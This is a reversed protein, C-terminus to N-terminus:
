SAGCAKRSAMIRRPCEADQKKHENYHISEDKVDERNNIRFPADIAQKHKVQQLSYWNQEYQRQKGPIADFFGIFNYTSILSTAGRNVQM